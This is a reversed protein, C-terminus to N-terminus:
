AAWRDRPPPAITVKVSNPIRADKPLAARARRRAENRARITQVVEPRRQKRAAMKKANDRLWAARKKAQRRELVADVIAQHRAAAMEATPFYRRSGRPGAAFILGSKTCYTPMAWHEDGIGLGALLEERTCGPRAAVFAVIQASSGNRATM